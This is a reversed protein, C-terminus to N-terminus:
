CLEEMKPNLGVKESSNFHTGSINGSCIDSVGTALFTAASCIVSSVEMEALRMAADVKGKMSGTVDLRGTAFIADSLSPYLEPTIEDFMKGGTHEYVGDVDSVFICKSVKFMKTLLEPIRDSGFVLQGLTTDYASGGTLLPIDNFQLSKEIAESFVSKVKGDQCMFLSSSQFPHMELSNEYSIQMFDVMLKYLGTTLRSFQLNSVTGNGRASALGYEHVPPHGYAGGGLVLLIPTASQQKLAIVKQILANCMDRKLTYPSERDTIISGGFKIILCADLEM